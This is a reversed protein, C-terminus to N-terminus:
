KKASAADTGEYIRGIEDQSLAYNYIRVDDLKGIYQDGYRDPAIGIRATGVGAMSANTGTKEAVLEGNLYIKQFGENANKVFAYHNWQGAWEELAANYSVEDPEDRGTKFEVRGDDQWETYVSVIYPRGYPGSGAQLIVNSHNMQNADGNVWASITIESDIHNGFVDGPISVGYTEDFNICGGFRGDPDWIPVKRVGAGHYGNGSSDSVISGSTEDFKWWLCMIRNTNFSWVDGVVVSGDAQVEDVRWYYTTDTQLEPLEDFSPSTVEGLLSLEDINTGFYVRHEAANLGQMWSLELKSVSSAVGGDAPQPKIANPALNLPMAELEALRQATADEITLDAFIVRHRDESIEWQMLIVHPFETTVKDGRYVVDKGEKVLKDYFLCAAEINALKAMLEERTPLTVNPDRNQDDLISKRLAEGAERMTIMLNLNSPYRGNSIEAFTRLGEILTQEDSLNVDPAVTYLTPMGPQPEGIIPGTSPIQSIAEQRAMIVTMQQGMTEIGAKIELIHQKPLAIEVAIKGNTVKGAFAINSNTEVDVPVIPPGIQGADVGVEIEIGQMMSAGMNLYRIFNVTGAFEAKDAKTLAELATAMESALEKPGGAKVEDILECMASNCDTGFVCLWLGNVIAYRFDFGGRYTQDIIKGYMSNPDNPEMVLKGVDISVGNCDDAGTKIEYRYEIGMKNHLDAFEGTNYLDAGAKILQKWKEEDKVAVIYKGAFPPWGESNYTFSAIGPGAACSVMDAVMNEFKDITEDPINQDSLFAIFDYETMSLEEMFPTNMKFGLNLIAGDKLYNLLTNAADSADAVFMKAMLTNPVAAASITLNLVDVKPNVSISLFEVEETLINFMGFYMNMAAAPAPGGQPSANMTEFQKKMQELQAYVMPGFVKAARQVNGYAWLPQNTAAAVEGADLSDGLGSVGQSVSKAISVLKGYNNASSLLVYGGLKAALMKKNPNVAGGTKIISIGNADPQECNPNDSVFKAYDTVPVLGAIFLNGLPNENPEPPSALGFLAFSGATNVGNLAPDGLASVLQMRAFMTAGAPMPSIGALYQDIMGLVYDFNNVRVCFMSKAPVLQLLEDPAQEVAPGSGEAVATDNGDLASTGEPAETGESDETGADAIRTEIAAIAEAFAPETGGYEEDVQQLVEVSDSDGILALYNAALVKSEDFQANLLMAELGRVDRAAFMQRVTNREAELVEATTEVENVISTEGVHQKESPHIFMKLGICVAIIIVAAAALKIIRSQMITRRVCGASINSSPALQKEESGISALLTEKASQCLHNDASLERMEDTCELLARLRKLESSCEACEAVHTKVKREEQESLEGLVFGILLEKIKEHTNV